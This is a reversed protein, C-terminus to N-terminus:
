LWLESSDSGRESQSNKRMNEHIYSKGVQTIITAKETPETDTLRAPMNRTRGNKWLSIWPWSLEFSITDKAM